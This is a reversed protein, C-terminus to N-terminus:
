HLVSLHEPRTLYIILPASRARSFTRPRDRAAIADGIDRPAIKIIYLLSVRLQPRCARRFRLRPGRYDREGAGNFRISAARRM